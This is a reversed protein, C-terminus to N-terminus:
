PRIVETPEKTAAHKLVCDWTCFHLTPGDGTITLFPLERHAAESCNSQCEPGDCRYTRDISM